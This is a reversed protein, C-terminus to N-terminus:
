PTKSTNGLKSKAMMFLVAGNSAVFLLYVVVFCWPAPYKEGLAEIQLSSELFSWIPSLLITAVASLPLALIALGISSYVVRPTGKTRWGMFFFMAGLALVGLLIKPLM